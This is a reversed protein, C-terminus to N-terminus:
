AAAAAKQIADRHVQQGIQNVHRGQRGSREDRHKGAGSAASRAQLLGALCEPKGRAGSATYDVLLANRVVPMALHRYEVL